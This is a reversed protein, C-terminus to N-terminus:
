SLLALQEPAADTQAVLPPQRHPPTRDPFTARGIGAATALERVRACVDDQYSKPAYSSKAYLQNHMSLLEPHTASLWGMFWERAGPRLHLVIPTV